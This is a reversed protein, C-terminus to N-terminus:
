KYNYFNSHKAIFESMEKVMVNYSPVKYNFDTRTCKMSKNEIVNDNKEIIIDKNLYKKFLELLDYKSITENNVLFYLGKLDQKYAEEMAKALEITTVGSWIVKSYGGITGSQKMFWNFLGIGNENADPGVISTRFTLNDTDLVEGLAKSRGYFSTADPIDSEVYEGKSGSNVCDTSMHIFKFKYASSLSNVYHPFLSNVTVALVKNNEAASNLIGIANIVLNPKVEKIISELKHMDNMIDYAYTKDDQIDSIQTKYVEYGNESFYTSITKGAMGNAGLVLVKNM